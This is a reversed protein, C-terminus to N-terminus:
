YIMFMIWECLVSDADSIEVRAIAGSVLISFLISSMFKNILLILWKCWVSREWDVGWGAEDRAIAGSVLISLFNIIKICWDSVDFLASGALEEAPKM